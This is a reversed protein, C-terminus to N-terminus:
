QVATRIPAECRRGHTPIREGGTMSPRREGEHAARPGEVQQRGLRIPQTRRELLMAMEDHFRRTGLAWGKNTADRIATLTSDTLATDFLGRYAAQRANASAGLAHYEAHPTILPERQGYANARHSSWRYDRPKSALGARVPNLEIYRHCAFLYHHTEVLTAKYRGEWLTGTRHYVANFRRVYRRGVSQMMGSIASHSMPTILLHVHNTMFVYAHVQCGYHECAARLCDHYFRRDAEAAFVTSRNNGRQIIHQPM